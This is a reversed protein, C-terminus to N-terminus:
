RRVELLKIAGNDFAFRATEDFHHRSAAPADDPNV